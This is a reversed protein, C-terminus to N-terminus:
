LCRKAIPVNAKIIRWTQADIAVFYKHKETIAHVSNAHSGTKCVANPCLDLAKLYRIPGAWGPKSLSECFAFIGKSAEALDQKKHSIFVSKYYEESYANLDYYPTAM